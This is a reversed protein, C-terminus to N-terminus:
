IYRLKRLDDIQKQLEPYYKVNKGIGTYIPDQNQFIISYDNHCIVEQTNKIGGEFSVIVKQNKDIITIFM